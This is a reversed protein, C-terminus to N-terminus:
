HAGGISCVHEVITPIQELAPDWVDRLAERIVYGPDAGDPEYPGVHNNIHIFLGNKIRVSPEARVQLHGIYDDTRRGEVLVSRMGPRDLVGEWNERPVLTAGVADWSAENALRFHADFNIGLVHLPTHELVEFTGTVLDFITEPMGSTTVTFRDREVALEFSGFDVLNLDPHIVKVEARDAETESVLNNASFWRPQLITPNFQGRLVIGHIVIEPSPHV